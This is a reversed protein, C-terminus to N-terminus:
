DINKYHGEKRYLQMLDKYELWPGSISSGAFNMYALFDFFSPTEEVAMLIERSKLNPEEKKDRARKVEDGDKLCTALCTVKMFAGM